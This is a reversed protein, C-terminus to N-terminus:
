HTANSSYKAIWAMLPGGPCETKSFKQHGFVRNRAIHHRESLADVLRELAALAEPEPASSRYDGLLCIGINGVNNAGSAHAGQWDLSRGQWVNGNADVLFHYGIDGWGRNRVHYTQIKQIVEAVDRTTTLEDGGDSEKASHHITIRSYPVDTPTLNGVRPSAARWADRKLITLGLPASAPAPTKAAPRPGSAVSPKSGRLAAIAALGDEAREKQLSRARPHELAAELAREAAQLRNSLLPASLTGAERRALELRGEGLELQADVTYEPYDRPGDGDLWEEIDGLKTWTTPKGKWHPYSSGHDYAPVPDLDRPPTATCATTLLILLPLSSRVNL